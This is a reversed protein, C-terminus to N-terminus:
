AHDSTELGKVSEKIIRSIREIQESRLITDHDGQVRHVDVHTAIKSWGLDPSLHHFLPRTVARFLTVRGRYNKPKYDNLSQFLCGIVKRRHDDSKRVGFEDELTFRTKGRALIWRGFYRLKRNARAVTKRFKEPGCSAGIWRPLNISVQSLHVAVSGLQRYSLDPEFGTDIM